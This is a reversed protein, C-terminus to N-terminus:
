PAIPADAGLLQYGAWYHPAGFRKHTIMSRQARALAEAPTRDRVGDYFLEAFAAAGEDEVPWLTAVVSGVGALLLAEALTAYDEGREYRTSWSRGAGTECGSLFVLSATADFGLLERVELRGDDAHESGTGPALLVRSFMPNDVNMIGHTALHVVGPSRLAARLARETAGQGVLTEALPLSSAVARAEVASAPLEGPLPAMVTASTAGHGPSHRLGVQTLAASPSVLIRYDEALFRQTRKDRLGAFPLYALAEHPVIVLTEAGKLAGTPLVPEILAAYLGDLVALATAREGRRAIVDRALRVRTNAEELSLTTAVAHLSDATVVFIIIPGRPPVFYEILVAGVGLSAQVRDIDLEASPAEPGDVDDRARVSEFQSRLEGIRSYLREVAPGDISPDGWSTEGAELLAISEAVGEIERLLRDQSGDAEPGVGQAASASETLARGRAADSVVFAEDLSGAEMLVDVLQAYVDRKDSSFTTRLAGPGYSSRVREVTELARWGAWAASDLMSLAQYARSNLYHSEWEEAYGGRSFDDLGDGLVTLVTRWDGTRDAIRAETLAVAIRASRVGLRGSLERATKLHSSVEHPGGLTHHVEALLLHDFLEEQAAGAKTHLALAERAGSLAREAAGLELHMDAEGRLDQGIEVTLGLEENIELAARYYASARRYDGAERYQEALVELNSAEEQRQGQARVRMLATDLAAFSRGHDGLAAYATALHGLANHDGAPFGARYVALAESLWEVAAAPNGKRMELMGLNTLANAWLRHDGAEAMFDRM